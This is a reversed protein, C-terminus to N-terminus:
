RYAAMQMTYDVQADLTSLRDQTERMPPVRGEYRVVTRTANDFTVSLPKLALRVIWSSPTISFSTRGADAATSEIRRIDFAYTQKQALVIMRVPMSPGREIAEWHTLIFGHLSPGSVVPADVDESATSLKGGDLLRFELRRGGNSLV